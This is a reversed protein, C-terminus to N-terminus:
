ATKPKEKAKLERKFRSPKLKRRAKRKNLLRRAYFV